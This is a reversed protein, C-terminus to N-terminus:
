NLRLECSKLIVYEQVRRQQVSYCLMKGYLVTICFYLIYLVRAHEIDV